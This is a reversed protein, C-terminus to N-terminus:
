LLTVRKARRQMVLKSCYSLANWNKKTFAKDYQQLTPLKKLISKTKHWIDSQLQVDDPIKNDTKLQEILGPFQNCEDTVIEM